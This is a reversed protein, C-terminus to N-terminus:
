AHAATSVLACSKEISAAHASAKGGLIHSIEEASFGELSHLLFPARDATPIKELAAVMSAHVPSAEVGNAADAKMEVILANVARFLFAKMSDVYNGDAVFLWLRQFAETMIEKSRNHDLTRLYCHRFVADAHEDYAALFEEESIFSGHVM